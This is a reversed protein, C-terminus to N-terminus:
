RIEETTGDILVALAEAKSKDTFKLANDKISTGYPKMALHEESYSNWNTFYWGDYDYDRFKVVWTTEPEVEYGFFWAKATLEKNDNDVIWDQFDEPGVALGKGTDYCGNLCKALTVKGKCDKLWAGVFGPVIVKQPEDLQNILERAKSLKIYKGNKGDEVLWTGWEKLKEILEEKNM